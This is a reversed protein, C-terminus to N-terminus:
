ECWKDIETARDARARKKWQTKPDQLKKKWNIEPFQNWTSQPKLSQKAHTRFEVFRQFQCFANMFLWISTSHDKETSTTTALSSPPLSKVSKTVYNKKQSQRKHDNPGPLELYAHSQLKPGRHSFHSLSQPKTFKQPQCHQACLAGAGYICGFTAVFYFAWFVCVFTLVLCM